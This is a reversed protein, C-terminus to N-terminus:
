GWCGAFGLAESGLVAVLVPGVSFSAECLCLEVENEESSERTLEAVIEPHLAGM